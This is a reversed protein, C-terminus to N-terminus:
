GMFIWTFILNELFTKAVFVVFNNWIRTDIQTFCMKLIDKSNLTFSISSRTSVSFVEFPFDSYINKSINYIYKTEFCNFLSGSTLDSVQYEM